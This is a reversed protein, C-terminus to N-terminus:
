SKIFGILAYLKLGRHHTFLISALLGMKSIEIWFWSSKKILALVFRTLLSRQQNRKYTYIKLDKGDGGGWPKIQGLCIKCISPSDLRLLFLYLRIHCVFGSLWLLFYAFFHGFCGLHDLSKNPSFSNKLTTELIKVSVYLDSFSIKSFLPVRGHTKQIQHNERM